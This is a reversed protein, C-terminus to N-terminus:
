CIDNSYSLLAKPKLLQLIRPRIVFILTDVTLPDLRRSALAELQLKMGSDTEFRFLDSVTGVFPQTRVLSICELLHHQVGELTLDSGDHWYRRTSGINGVVRLSLLTGSLSM